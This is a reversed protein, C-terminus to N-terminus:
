KFVTAYQYIGGQCRRSIGTGFDAKCIGIQVICHALRRCERVWEYEGPFASLMMHPDKIWRDGFIVPFFRLLVSQGHNRVEASTSGVVCPGRGGCEPMGRLLELVRAFSTDDGVYLTWYAPAKRGMVTGPSRESLTTSTLDTANSSDGNLASQSDPHTMTAIGIDAEVGELELMMEFARWRTDWDPVVEGAGDLKTAALGDTLMRVVFRFAALMDAADTESAGGLVDMMDLSKWRVEWNPVVEGAADFKTALVAGVLM